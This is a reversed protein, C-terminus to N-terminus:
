LWFMSGFGFHSPAETVVCVMEPAASEARHIICIISKEPEAVVCAQAAALYLIKSWPSPVAPILRLLSTSQSCIARVLKGARDAVIRVAAVPSVFGEIL